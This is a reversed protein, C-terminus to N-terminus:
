HNIIYKCLFGNGSDLELVDEGGGFSVQGSGM